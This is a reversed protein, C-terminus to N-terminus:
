DNSGTLILEYFVFFAALPTLLDDLRLSYEKFPSQIFTFLVTATKENTLQSLM